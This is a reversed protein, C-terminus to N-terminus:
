YAHMAKSAHLIQHRSIFELHTKCVGIRKGLFESKPHQARTDVAGFAKRESM